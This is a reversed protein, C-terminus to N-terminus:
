RSAVIQVENREYGYKLPQGEGNGGHGIKM